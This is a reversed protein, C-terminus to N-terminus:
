QCQPLPKQLRSQSWIGVCAHAAEQSGGGVAPYVGPADVVEVAGVYTGPLDKRNGVYVDQMGAALPKVNALDGRLQTLESPRLKDPPRTGEWEALEDEDYLYVEEREAAFDNAQKYM